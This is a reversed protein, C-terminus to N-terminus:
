LFTGGPPAEPFLSESISENKEKNAVRFFLSNKRNQFPIRDFGEGTILSGFFFTVLDLIHRTQGPARHLEIRNIQNREQPIFAYDM